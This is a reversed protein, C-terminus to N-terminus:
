FEGFKRIMYNCGPVINNPKSLYDDLYEKDFFFLEGFEKTVYSKLYGGPGAAGELRFSVEECVKFANFKMRDADFNEIEQATLSQIEDVTLGEFM